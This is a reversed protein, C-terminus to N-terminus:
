RTLSVPQQRLGRRSIATHAAVYHAVRARVDERKVAPRSPEATSSSRAADAAAHAGSRPIWSVAAGLGLPKGKRGIPPIMPCRLLSGSPIVLTRRIMCSATGFHPLKSARNESRMGGLCKRRRLSSCTPLLSARSSALFNALAIRLRHDLAGRRFQRGIHAGLHDQAFLFAFLQTTIEFYRM